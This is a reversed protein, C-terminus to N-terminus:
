QPDGAIRCTVTGVRIVPADSAPVVLTAACRRDSSRVRAAYVGPAIGEVYFEGEAGLWSELPGDPTDITLAADLAAQGRLLDPQGEVVLTGSVRWQRTASFEAIAGGRYPPALLLHKRTLARDVPVDTDAISIQNCLIVHCSDDVSM